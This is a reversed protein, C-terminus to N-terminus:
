PWPLTAKLHPACAISRVAESGSISIAPAAERAIKRKLPLPPVGYGFWRAERSLRSVAPRGVTLLPPLVKM